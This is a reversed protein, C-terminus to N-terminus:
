EKPQASGGGIHTLEKDKPLAEDGVGRARHEAGKAVQLHKLDKENPLPEGDLGRVKHPASSDKVPVLEGPKPLPHGHLGPGKGAGGQEADM